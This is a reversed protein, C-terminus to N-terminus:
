QAVVVQGTGPQWNPQNCQIVNPFLNHQSRDVFLTFSSLPPPTKVDIILPPGFYFTHYSTHCLRLELPKSHIATAAFM